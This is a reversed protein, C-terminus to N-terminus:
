IAGFRTRPGYQVQCAELLAEIGAGAVKTRRAGGVPGAPSAYGALQDQVQWLSCAVVTQEITGPPRHALVPADDLHTAATTGLDGRTVTLSWPASVHDGSAHTSLVTGDQARSVILVTASVVDTILLKEAGILIKQGPALGTTSSVTLSTSSVTAALGTGGVTIGTDVWSAGTVVLVEDDIWLIAGVDARLPDSVSTLIITTTTADLPGSLIGLVTRVQSGHGWLGTVTIADESGTSPDVQWYGPVTDKDLVITDYPPGTDPRLHYSGAAAVTGAVTLQTVATVRSSYLFLTRGQIRDQDPWDYSRTGTWPFLEVGGCREEVIQSSAGIARDVLGHIRPHPPIDLANTVMGRTAYWPRSTTM